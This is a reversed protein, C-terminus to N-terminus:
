CTKTGHRSRPRLVHASVARCSYNIPGLRAPRLQAWATGHPSGSHGVIAAFADRVHSHNHRRRIDTPWPVDAILSKTLCARCQVTLARDAFIELNEQM